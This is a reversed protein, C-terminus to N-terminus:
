PTPQALWVPVLWRTLCGVATKISINGYLGVLSATLLQLNQRGLLKAFPTPGALALRSSVYFSRDLLLLCLLLGADCMLGVLHSRLGCQQQAPYTHKREREGLRETETETEKERQRQDCVANINLVRRHVSVRGSRRFQCTMQRTASVRRTCCRLATRACRKFLPM